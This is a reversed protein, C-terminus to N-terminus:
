PSRAGRLARLGLRALSVTGGRLGQQRDADRASGLQAFARWARVATQDYPFWWAPRGWPPDWTVLQERACARLGAEGHSRGAAGAQGAGGWPGQPVAPSILHDNLWVAGTRLERAIRRGQHPNATWVSAGIGTACRNALAIADATSDVSVVGVVPGEIPERMIRMESDVDALVTPAYFSGPLGPVPAPGGCLRRAGADVAQTVLQDVRDAAQASPLPGMQTRPDLPPGVVLQSAAEALGATFREVLERAVYIREVSGRAQGAAAFGAWAAGGVARTVQADELVLMADGGDCELVVPRGIRGCETRVDVGSGARGTFFLGDLESQVLARGVEDDGHVIRLLGEPLGARGLVRGIREGSLCAGPSPKVVVANGALLAAAVQGLPQAFPASRAGIVGVVGLPEYELRARKLPFLGRHVGV